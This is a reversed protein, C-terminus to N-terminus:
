SLYWIDFNVTTNIKVFNPVSLNIYTSAQTYYFDSEAIKGLELSFLEPHKPGIIDMILRMRSRITM